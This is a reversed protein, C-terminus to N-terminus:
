SERYAMLPLPQLEKESEVEKPVMNLILIAQDRAKARAQHNIMEDSYVWRGRDKDYAAKNEFANLGEVIGRLVKRTTLGVRKAESLIKKHALKAAEAGIQEDTKM